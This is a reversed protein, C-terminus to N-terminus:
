EFEVITVAGGGELPTGYRYNKVHPHQRLTEHIAKRLAGTGQGHVIRVFPVGAALANDLFKEVLPLAEDVRKGHLDISTAVNGKPLYVVAGQPAHHSTEQESRVIHELEDLPVTVVVGNRLRVQAKGKEPVLKEITGEDNLQPINVNMGIEFKAVNTRPTAKLRELEGETAKREADLERRAEDLERKTPQRAILEEVKAKLERIAREKEELMRLRLQRKERALAERETELESKLIELEARTKEIEALERSLREEKHQISVLLATADHEVAPRMARAREIIARPLGVQEAIILAESIGPLDLILQFTPRHDRESLRFSANRGAPHAAAWNKLAALHTSVLTLCGREALAELIAVALAGGEGPDTATGLEDLLVLSGLSARELIRAIRQMHASFTSVGQLVSQEDGIDVLVQDFLPVRSRANLPVPIASQVMLVTLGVTKLATTKGGANPGTIVLVRNARELTLTLPRSVDPAAVRLLPHHAEILRLPEDPEALSPFTCGHAVGFRAKAYLLDFEALIALNTQLSPLEDRIHGAVRLLIRYIEEREKVRLESLRNSEDLIVYPEIFVTEGTNSSDHILGPVRHRNSTKVPLVYRNNRLTYFDDQLDGSEMLERIMRQLTTQIRHECAFIEARLVRLNESATDRMTSDPAVKEEISRVLAPLHQLPQALQYLNPAVTELGSFFQRMRRATELFDRLDLLETTELIARERSVRKLHEEVDRLDHIPPEHRQELLTMMERVLQINRQLTSRESTPTLQAVRRRGLDSVCRSELLERIRSFELMREEFNQM